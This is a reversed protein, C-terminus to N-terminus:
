HWQMLTACKRTLHGKTLETSLECNPAATGSFKQKTRRYPSIADDETHAWQSRFATHSPLPRVSFFAVRAGRGEGRAESERPLSQKRQAGFWRDDAGGGPLAVGLSASRCSAM